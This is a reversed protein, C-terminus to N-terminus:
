NRFTSVAARGLATDANCRVTSCYLVKRFAQLLSSFYACMVTSSCPRQWLLHSSTELQIYSINSLCPERGALASGTTVTACILILFLASVATTDGM